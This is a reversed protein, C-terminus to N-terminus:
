RQPAMPCFLRSLSQRLWWVAKWISIPTLSGLAVIKGQMDLEEVGDYHGIGAIVGNKVAIDGHSLENTFVNVYVANKM